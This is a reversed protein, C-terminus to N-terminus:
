FLPVNGQLLHFRYLDYKEGVQDTVDIAKTIYIYSQHLFFEDHILTTSPTKPVRLIYSVSGDHLSMVNM